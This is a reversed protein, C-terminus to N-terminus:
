PQSRGNHLLSPLLRGRGVRANGVLVFAAAAAVFGALLVACRWFVGGYGLEDVDVFPYPYWGTAAGRVLTYALWAAPYALWAGAIWLPLRHRPPAALWDVVLVIPIVRHLILDVWSVTTQLDEQLGSLLLAFVVGTIVIYLTVGGRLLDFLWTRERPRVLATLALMAAALINSQITFFSFFNGAGFTPRDTSAAFQYSMASVAAAAFGLRVLNPVLIRPAV